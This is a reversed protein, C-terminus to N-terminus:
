MLTADVVHEILLKGYQHPYVDGNSIPEYKLNDLKNSDIQLLYVEVGTYYKQKVRKMQEQTSSMHIYGDRLDLLTGLFEKDLQFNEWEDKLLIKYVIKETIVNESNKNQTQNTITQNM